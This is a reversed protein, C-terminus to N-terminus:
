NPETLKRTDTLYVLRTWCLLIKHSCREWSGVKRCSQVARIPFALRKTLPWVAERPLPMDRHSARARQSIGAEKHFSVERHSAWGIQSLDLSETFPGIKIHFVRSRQSLGQMKKKKEKLNLITENYAKQTSTNKRPPHPVYNM